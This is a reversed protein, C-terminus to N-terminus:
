LIRTWSTSFAGFLTYAQPSGYQVSTHIPISGKWDNEYGDAGFDIWVSYIPVPLIGAGLGFMYDHRIRHFSTLQITSLAVTCLIAFSIVVPHTIRYELITAWLAILGELGAHVFSEGVHKELNIWLVREKYLFGQKNQRKVGIYYGSESYALYNVQADGNDLSEVYETIHDIIKDFTSASSDEYYVPIIGASVSSIKNNIGVVRNRDDDDLFEILNNSYCAMIYIKLAPSDEVMIAVSEWDVMENDMLLGEENGHSFVVIKGNNEFPNEEQDISEIEGEYLSSFTDSAEGIATNTDNGQYVAMPGPVIQPLAVFGIMFTPTAVILAVV